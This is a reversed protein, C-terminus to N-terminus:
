HERVASWWSAAIAAVPPAIFVGSVGGLAAGVVTAALVAVPHLNLARGFVFPRLVGELINQTVLVIALMWLGTTLGGAGLAVLVAFAASLWAGLYPIFAGVFTVVAIVAVMPLDLAVAGLTIAATDLLAVVTTGLVYQRFQVAATGLLTRTL